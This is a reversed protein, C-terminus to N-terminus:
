PLVASITITSCAKGRAELSARLTDYLKEVWKFPAAYLLNKTSCCPQTETLSACPEEEKQINYLFTYQKSLSLGGWGGM